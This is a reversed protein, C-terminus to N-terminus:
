KVIAKVAEEGEVAVVVVGAPAAIVANDSAIVTNAIAQGLINSIVVKKGAAGAITVQGQGAVVKVAEASVADNSTAFENTAKVLVPLAEKDSSAVVTNNIVALRTPEAANFQTYPIVEYVDAEDTIRFMFANKATVKAQNIGEKGSVYVISDNNADYKGKITLFNGTLSDKAAGTVAAGKMIYHAPFLYMSNQTDTIVNASDVWMAFDEKTAGAKLEDNIRLFKAVGTSTKVLMPEGAATNDTFTYHGSKIRAYKFKSDSLVINFKSIESNAYPLFETPAGDEHVRITTDGWMLTDPMIVPLVTYTDVTEQKLVFGAKTAGRMVLKTTDASLGLTDKGAILRYVAFVDQSQFLTKNVKDASPFSDPAAFGKAIELKFELPTGDSAIVSTDTASYQTLYANEAGLKNVLALKITRTAMENASLVKFGAPDTVKTAVVTDTGIIIGETVENLKEKQVISDGYFRNIISYTYKGGEVTQRIYWQNEPKVTSLGKESAYAGDAQAATSLNVYGKTLIKGNEAAIKSYKTLIYPLDEFRDAMRKGVVPAAKWSIVGNVSGTDVTTTIEDTVFKATGIYALTDGYATTGLKKNEVDWGLMSDKVAIAVMDNAPNYLIGFNNFPSVTKAGFGLKFGFAKQQEAMNVTSNETYNASDVLFYNGTSVSRINFVSDTHGTAIEFMFTDDAKGELASLFDFTYETRENLDAATMWRKAPAELVVKLTDTLGAAYPKIAGTAAVMLQVGKGDKAYFLPKAVAAAGTQGVTDLRNYVVDYTGIAFSNQNDIVLSGKAKNTFIYAGNGSVPRADPKVEWLAANTNSAAANVVVVSDKGQADSVFAVYKGDDTKLKFYKSVATQASASAVTIAGCFLTFILKNM